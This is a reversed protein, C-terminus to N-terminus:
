FRYRLAVNLDTELKNNTSNYPLKLEFELRTKRTIKRVYKLILRLGVFEFNDEQDDNSYLRTIPAELETIFIGRSLKKTWVVTPEIEVEFLDFEQDAASNYYDIELDFGIQLSETVNYYWRPTLESTMQNKDLNRSLENRIYIETRDFEWGVDLQWELSGDESKPYVPKEYELHTKWNDQQYRLTSEVSTEREWDKSFTNELELKIEWQGARSASIWFPSTLLFALTFITFKRM